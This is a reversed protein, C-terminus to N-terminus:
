FLRNSHFNQKRHTNRLGGGAPGRPKIRLNQLVGPHRRRIKPLTRPYALNTLSIRHNPAKFSPAAVIAAAVDVVAELALLPAANDRRPPMGHHDQNRSLGARNVTVRIPHAGIPHELIEALPLKAVHAENSPIGRDPVVVDVSAVQQDEALSTFAKAKFALVDAFGEMVFRSRVPATRKALCNDKFQPWDLGEDFLLILPSNRCCGNRIQLLTCKGGCRRNRSAGLPHASYELTATVNAVVDDRPRVPFTFCARRRSRENTRIPLRIEFRVVNAPQAISTGVTWLKDNAKTRVAMATRMRTHIRFCKVIAEQAHHQRQLRLMM